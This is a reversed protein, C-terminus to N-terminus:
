WSTGAPEHQWDDTPGSLKKLADTREDANHPRKPRGATGLDVLKASAEPVDTTYRIYRMPPQTSAPHMTRNPRLTGTM